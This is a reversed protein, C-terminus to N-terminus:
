PQRKQRAAEKKENKGELYYAAAGGVLVVAAALFWSLEYTGSIDAIHGFIPPALTVGVRVFIMSFGMATASQEKGAQESIAAFLLGHFGRTSAGAFLGMVVLFPAINDSFLMSSLGLLSTVVVISLTIVLFGFRKSGQLFKQCLMGWGPRAIVSGGQLLAFSLGALEETFGHDLHLFLTFHTAVAGGVGGFILGLICLVLLRRNKLLQSFGERLPLAKQAESSSEEQPSDADQYFLYVVFSVLLIFAGAAATTMRWGFVGAALLPLVAAGMMGGISWGTSMIGMPTSRDSPGFWDAIGKASAPSIFSFGVGCIGALILLGFFSPTLAHLALLAGISVIGILMGTKAGIRDTIWGTFIALAASVLYLLSTYMGIVARSVGFEAQLFPFLAAFGTRYLGGMVTVSTILALSLINKELHIRQKM